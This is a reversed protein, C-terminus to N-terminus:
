RYHKTPSSLLGDKYKVQAEMILTAVDAVYGTEIELTKALYWIMGYMEEITEFGDGGTKLVFSIHEYNHLGGDENIVHYYSGGM